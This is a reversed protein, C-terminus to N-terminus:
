LNMLKKFDGLFPIAGYKGSIYDKEFSAANRIGKFQVLSYLHSAGFKDKEVFEIQDRRLLDASLLNTDHTIFILQTCKNTKSNFLEIIKKTLLPHFRADFEDIILPRNEKLSEFVVPSLEFLKLTGESEMMTFPSPVDEHFNQNADYKKRTSVVVKMKRDKGTINSEKNDADNSFVDSPVDVTEVDEIGTDGHKLFDVIYKRRAEERLCDGAYTHLGRHGLGNIVFVSDINDVIEKALKGFGLSAITSLFLSNSRFIQNDASFNKFFEVFKNGENFNTKDIEIIEQNDRIFYPLERLGPKAYLWEAYILKDDLEFGYRYRINEIWFILQFFTPAHETETSLRFPEVLKLIEEDKVSQKIIRIFTGLAKAINSKGSANAGYIAKSKLFKVGRYSEDNIVNAEDVFAYKSKIKAAAMNLTQIDKFSRFNGFSFEQIVM